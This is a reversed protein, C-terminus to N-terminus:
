PESPKPLKRFFTVGGVRVVKGDRVEDNPFEKPLFVVRGRTKILYGQVDAARISRVDVLHKKNKPNPPRALKGNKFLVLVIM